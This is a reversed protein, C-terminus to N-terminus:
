AADDLRKNLRWMLHSVCGILLGQSPPRSWATQTTGDRFVIGVAASSIEGRKARALADEFLQIVDEGLPEASLVRLESM